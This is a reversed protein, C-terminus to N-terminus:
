NAVALEPYDTYGKAGGGYLTAQDLENLPADTKFREVLDPNAIFLRGYAVLDAAGSEIAAAGMERTYGNNVMWPGKFETRLKAFDFSPAIDRAGGTAGEVVHVYALKRASLERVFPFFVSAPDSDSLGSAPSVPSIRIGTREAGIAAVIADVVALPFRMRNEVPGGFEDTRQNAGDRLFQDLLYGNAAHIEIGDFGAEIANHAAKVYDAVIGPLESAELARPTGVDVFSGDEIFTKQGVPAIASPGVPAVGGPQLAPHSFRGVHWLQMVITGGQAHVAKTVLQWGAVQEPSYIGPTFAYGKGSPSIQTAESIILGASARQEYYEANLAHPVDTGHTARNRTLPAMVIRNHLTKGLLDFPTFLSDANSKM